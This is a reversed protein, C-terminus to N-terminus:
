PTPNAISRARQMDQATQPTGGGNVLVYGLSRRLLLPLANGPRCIELVTVLPLLEVPCTSAGKRTNKGNEAMRHLLGAAADMGTTRLPSVQSPGPAKLRDREAAVADAAESLAEGRAVDREIQMGLMAFVSEQLAEQLERARATPM